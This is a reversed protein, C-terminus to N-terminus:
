RFPFPRRPLFCSASTNKKLLGNKHFHISTLANVSNFVPKTAFDPTKTCCTWLKLHATFPFVTKMKSTGNEFLNYHSCTACPCQCFFFFDGSSLKSMGLVLSLFFFGKGLMCVIIQILSILPQTLFNRFLHTSMECGFYKDVTVNNFSRMAFFSNTVLMLTLTLNIAAMAYYVQTDAQMDLVWPPSADFQSWHTEQRYHLVYYDHVYM